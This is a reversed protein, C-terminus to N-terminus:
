KNKDAQAIYQLFIRELLSHALWGYLGPFVMVFPQFFRVAICGLIFVALLLLSVLPYMLLLIGSLKLTKGATDLFRAAYAGAYVMWIGAVGGILLFVPRLVGLPMGQEQLYGTVFSEIITIAGLLALPLFSLTAQRFSQRFGRFFQQFVNGEGRGIVKHIATYMATNAAGITFLPASCVLWLVSLIALNGIHTLVRGFGSDLKFM